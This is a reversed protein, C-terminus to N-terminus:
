KSDLNRAVITVDDKSKVAGWTLTGRPMVVVEVPHPDELSSYSHKDRSDPAVTQFDAWSCLFETTDPGTDRLFKVFTIVEVVTTGPPRGFLGDVTTIRGTVWVRSSILYGDGLQTTQLAEIPYAVNSVLDAPRKAQPQPAVRERSTETQTTPVQCALAAYLILASGSLTKFLM